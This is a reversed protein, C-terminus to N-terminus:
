KFIARITSFIIKLDTSFSMEEIYQKYLRIKEPMIQKVYISEADGQSKLLAAEDRFMISAYDTIGPKVELIREYEDPYFDTYRRVEPRPGVISMHGVLVNILQPLEDLKFKRLFRGASTIRSDQNVSISLGLKDANRIMTRFKIINFPKNHKGVREQLFFVPLGSEMLIIVTILIFVPLLLILAFASFVFDITRKFLRYM